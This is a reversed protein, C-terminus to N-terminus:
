RLNTVLLARRPTIPKGRRVDGLRAGMGPGAFKSLIEDLDTGYKARM